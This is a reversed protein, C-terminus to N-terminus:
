NNLITKIYQKPPAGKVRTFATTFSSTSQYGVDFAVTTINKGSILMEIASNIRLMDKWRTFKMGTEKEFLRALTRESLGAQASLAQLTYNESPASKMKETVAKLRADTGSPLHLDKCITDKNLYQLMLTRILHSESHNATDRKASLRAYEKILESMLSTCYILSVDREILESHSKLYLTMVESEESYRAEHEIGPGVWLACHPTALWWGCEVKLWMTGKVVYALQGEDHAHLTVKRGPPHHRAISYDQEQQTQAPTKM